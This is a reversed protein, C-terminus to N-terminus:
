KLVYGEHINKRLRTWEQQQKKKHQLKEGRKPCITTQVPLYKLLESILLRQDRASLEEGYSSLTLIGDLPVSLARSEKKQFIDTKGICVPCLLRHYKEEWRGDLSLPPNCPNNQRMGREKERFLMSHLLFIRTDNGHIGVETSKFAGTVLDGRDM